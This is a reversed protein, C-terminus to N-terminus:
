CFRVVPHFYGQAMKGEVFSVHVLGPDFGSMLQLVWLGDVYYKFRVNKIRSFV